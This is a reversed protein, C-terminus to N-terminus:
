IGCWLYVDTSIARINPKPSWLSTIEYCTKVKIIWRSHSFGDWKTSAKRWQSSGSSYRGFNVLATCVVDISSTINKSAIFVIYILYSCGVSLTIGEYTGSTKRRCTFCHKSQAVDVISSTLQKLEEIACGISTQPIFCTTFDNSLQKSSGCNGSSWHCSHMATWAVRSGLSIFDCTKDWM